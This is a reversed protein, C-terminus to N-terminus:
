TIVAPLILQGDNETRLWRGLVTDTLGIDPM